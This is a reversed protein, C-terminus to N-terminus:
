FAILM